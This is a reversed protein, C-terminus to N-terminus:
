TDVSVEILVVWFFRNNTTHTLATTANTKMQM